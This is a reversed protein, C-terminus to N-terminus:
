TYHLDLRIDSKDSLPKANTLNALQQTFSQYQQAPVFRVYPADPKLRKVQAQPTKAFVKSQVKGRM